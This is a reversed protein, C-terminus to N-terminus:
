ECSNRRFDWVPTVTERAGGKRDVLMVPWGVEISPWWSKVRVLRQDAALCGLWRLIREM